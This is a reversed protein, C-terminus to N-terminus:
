RRVARHWRDGRAAADDAARDHEEWLRDRGRDGADRREDGRLEGRRGGEGRRDEAEVRNRAHDPLAEGSGAGRRAARRLEDSIRGSASASGPRCCAPSAILPTARCRSSARTSAPTSPSRTYRLASPLSLWVAARDPEAPQGPDAGATGRASRDLTPISRLLGWTYPHEPRKLLTEAAATEVIRGAYMVAIEDAMEAVVGLDHTVIVIAMGLEDRLRELLALIQAQVTVDLATTPEDAILLKPENALAMAIMARQRMGGSFEHPYDDVRRRRIPSGSSGWCSSRASARGTGQIRGPSRAGGGRDARRSSVAPAAGLSPDQFIM